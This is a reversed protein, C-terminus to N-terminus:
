TSFCQPKRFYHRIFSLTLFLHLRLEDQQPLEKHKLPKSMETHIDTVKGTKDGKRAPNELIWMQDWYLPKM